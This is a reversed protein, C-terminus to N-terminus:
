GVEEFYGDADILLTMLAPLAILSTAYLSLPSVVVLLMTLLLFRRTRKKM